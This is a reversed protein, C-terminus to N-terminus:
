SSYFANQKELYLSMTLFKQGYTFIVESMYLVYRLIKVPFNASSRCVGIHKIDQQFFLYPSLIM